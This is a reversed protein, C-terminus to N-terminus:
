VWCERVEERLSEFVKELKPQHLILKERPVLLWRRPRGTEDDFFRIFEKRSFMIGAADAFPGGNNIVCIMIEDEQPPINLGSLKEKADLNTTLWDAKSEVRPTDIYFGM